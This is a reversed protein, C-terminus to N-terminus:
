DETKKAEFIIQRGIPEYTVDTGQRNEQFIPKEIRKIPMYGAKQIRELCQDITEHEQVEFKQKLKSM